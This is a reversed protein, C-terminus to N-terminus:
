CPAGEAQPQLRKGLRYYWRHYGRDLHGILAVMSTNPSRQLRSTRRSMTKPSRRANPSALKSKTTFGIEVSKTGRHLFPTAHTDGGGSNM